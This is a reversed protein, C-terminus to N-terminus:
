VGSNSRGQGRAAPMYSLMFEVHLKMSGLKKKSFLGGSGNAWMVGDVLKAIELLMLQTMM